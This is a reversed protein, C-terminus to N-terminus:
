NEIRYIVAILMLRPLSNHYIVQHCFVILPTRTLLKPLPPPPIPVAVVEVGPATVIAVKIVFSDLVTGVM